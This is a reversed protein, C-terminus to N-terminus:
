PSHGNKSLQAMQTGNWGLRWQQVNMSLQAMKAHNSEKPIIPAHSRLPSCPNQSLQVTQTYNQHKTNIPVQSNSSAAMQLCCSPNHCAKSCTQYKTCPEYNTQVVQPLELLAVQWKSVMKSKSCHQENDQLTQPDMGSTNADPVKKCIFMWWCENESHDDGGRWGQCWTSANVQGACAINTNSHEQTVAGDQHLKLRAFCLSHPQKFPQLSTSPIAAQPSYSPNYRTKLHTQHKSRSSHRM